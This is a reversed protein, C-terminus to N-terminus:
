QHASLLLLLSRKFFSADETAKRITQVIEFGKEWYALMEPVMEPPHQLDGDMTIVADGEAHDLGCTLALQHGYNRSLFILKWM